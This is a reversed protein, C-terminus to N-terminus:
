MLTVLKLLFFNRVVHRPNMGERGRLYFCYGAPTQTGLPVYCIKLFMNLVVVDYLLLFDKFMNSERVQRRYLNMIMSVIQNAVIKLFSPGLVLQIKCMLMFGVVIAKLKFTKNYM